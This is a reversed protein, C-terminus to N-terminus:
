QGAPPTDRGERYPTGSKYLQFDRNLREILSASGGNSALSIAKQIVVVAEDFRGTEALAAAKTTMLGFNGEELIQEAMSIYRLAEAGNRLTPDVNTSMVWAVLNCPGHDQCGLKIANKSYNIALQYEKIRYYHKGLHRHFSESTPSLAIARLYATTAEENRDVAALALGLNHHTAPSLPRIELARKLTEIAEEFRGTRLYLLGLNGM